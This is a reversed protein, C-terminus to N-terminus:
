IWSTFCDQFARPALTAFLRNFTDHAPIGNPLRLGLSRLWPEKTRGFEAIDDWSDCGSLVAALAIVLLDGLLHHDRFAPHRPDPLDRFHHALDVPTGPTASMAAAGVLCCTVWGCTVSSLASHGDQRM